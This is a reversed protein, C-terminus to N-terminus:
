QRASLGEGARLVQARFALRRRVEYESALSALRQYEAALLPTIDGKVRYAQLSELQGEQAALDPLPRWEPAGSWPWSNIRVMKYGPRYLLISTSHSTHSICNVVLATVVVGWTLSPSVQAPIREDSGVSVPTLERSGSLHWQWMGEANPFILRSGWPFVATHTRDVRFAFVEDAPAGPRIPPTYDIRPLLCYVCGGSLPLTLAFALALATRRM